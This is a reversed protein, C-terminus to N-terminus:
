RPVQVLCSVGHAALLRGIGRVAGAARYKLEWFFAAFPPAVRARAEFLVQRLSVLSVSSSVGGRLAEGLGVGSQSGMASPFEFVWGLKEGVRPLVQVSRVGGSTGGLLGGCRAM